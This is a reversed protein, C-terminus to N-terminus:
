FSYTKARDIEKENRDINQQAQSIDLLLCGYETMGEEPDLAELEGKLDELEVELGSLETELEEIFEDRAAEVDKIWYTDGKIEYTEEGDMYDNVGCRYATPDMEKLVQSPVMHGFPGGVNEFSYNEDLVQDFRLERDVPTCNDTVHTILDRM